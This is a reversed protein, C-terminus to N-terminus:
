ALMTSPCAITAIAGVAGGGPKTSSMGCAPPTAFAEGFAIPGGGGFPTTADSEKELPASVGEALLPEASCVTPSCTSGLVISM